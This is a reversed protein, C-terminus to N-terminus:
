LRGGKVFSTLQVEDEMGIRLRNLRNNFGNDLENLREELAKYLSEKYEDRVVEEISTVRATSGVVVEKTLGQTFKVIQEFM